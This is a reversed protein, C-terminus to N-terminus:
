RGVLDSEIKLEPFGLRVRYVQLNELTRQVYNRTEDFPILEIWDIAKEVSDRPDGNREIWDTVRGPGANYAVFALVYSGRYDAVMRAFHTGGLLANYAPDSLLREEEYPLGLSRAVERATGPLLQLLGRADAYSVATANFVTEQRAIAYVAALEGDLPQSLEPIGAIPFPLNGVDVGRNSAQVGIQVAVQHRGLSEAKAALLALEAPDDMAAGASRFFLDLNDLRELEVFVDIARVLERQQFREVTAADAEPPAPIALTTMGAEVAGLQGYYTAPYSAARRYYAATALADGSEEAARGM